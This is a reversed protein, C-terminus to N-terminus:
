TTRRIAATLLGAGILATGGCRNFWRRARATRVRERLQGAFLSYLTANVAALCLFTACLIVLQPAASVKPNM